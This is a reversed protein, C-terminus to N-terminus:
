KAIRKIGAFMATELTFDDSAKTLHSWSGDLHQLHNKDLKELTIKKSHATYLLYYKKNGYKNCLASLISLGEGGKKDGIDKFDVFILDASKYKDNDTNDILRKELQELCEWGLKRLIKITGTQDDNDVFLIRATKKIEQNGFNEFKLLLRQEATKDAYNHVSQDITGNNIGTNGKGENQKVRIETIPEKQGFFLPFIGGLASSV